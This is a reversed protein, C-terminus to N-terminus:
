FSILRGCRSPLLNVRLNRKVGFTMRRRLDGAMSGCGKATGADCLFLSPVSEIAGSPSITSHFGFVPRPKFM